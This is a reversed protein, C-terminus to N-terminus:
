VGFEISYEGHKSDMLVYNRKWYMELRVPFFVVTTSKVIEKNRRFIILFVLILLKHESKPWILCFRVTLMEEYLNGSESILKLVSNRM